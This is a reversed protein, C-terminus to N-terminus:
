LSIEDLISVIVQCGEVIEDKTITLPPTLRIAKSEFLLWFLILGRNQAKLILQNAIEASPTIAALMLGRGRIETILPHKLHKRFLQEKELAEAMLDSETVEKVTALAAAAIVPHGGFTTIHGLKPFDQLTHMMAKSSTFAGIPMGGGLGKGTVLIDPICNYHEFGFLKGTRGIGPQIEDLILLAGVEDCRTRVKTLYNDLPEIFGAGGQITELIVAATKPTIQNLDEKNNYTIFNVDPMLPRFARKREEYGMVSMAGTTNGHYAHHAAIIQSRGTARRALKLAGEIAETGSNVLYTCDLSKPLHQALLKTLQVAPEQIYEGYVMVHLYKDLQDKIAKVVKPHRHGLSCASVGAVFDLYAKNNTDYVYCGEAHSVEMALPHPTTQAQHDLFDSTM